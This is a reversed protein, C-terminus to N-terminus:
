CHFLVKEVLAKVKELQQERNLNTNDLVIADETQILPSVARTSDLHDRERLNKMVEDRTARIGKQQLELFRRETRTNVDATVFLKLEAEPFVVSGIDRGDM